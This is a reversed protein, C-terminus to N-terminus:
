KTSLINKNFYLANTFENRFDANNALEIYKITKIVSNLKDYEQRSVLVRRAGEVAANGVYVVKELEIEPLLGIVQANYHNLFNGFSGALYIKEIKNLEVKENNILTKIGASIASKALQLQRVDNQTIVVKKGKTDSIFFSNGKGEEEYIHGILKDSIKGSIESKDLIRGTEDIIGTQILGAMIDVLGSGCIGIPEVDGITHFLIDKNTIVVSDIAGTVAPMGCSIQAGEFVPGAATSAVVLEGKNALVIEGNTGLDIALQIEDKEGMGLALIVGLTDGGVFGALNPFVTVIGRPNIKIEIEEALTKVTDSLTPVYPALPLFETTVGLFLHQMTTNGVVVMSYINDRKVSCLNCLNNVLDNTINRIEKQMKIVGDYQTIVYNSRSIVDGGYAIQSNPLCDYGLTVGTKLDILEAGVVTTGIDLAIGYYKNETNGEELELIKEPSTVVTLKYENKRLMVPLKKLICLDNTVKNNELSRKLNDDDTIPNDISPIIFSLFQKKVIPNYPVPNPTLTFATKTWKFESNPIEIEFDKNKIVVQCALRIGKNIESKDLLEKELSTLESNFNRVFVKCKGCRGHGGCPAIFPLGTLNIADKLTIKSPLKVSKNYPQFKITPM